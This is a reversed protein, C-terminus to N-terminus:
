LSFMGKFETAYLSESQTRCRALTSSHTIPRTSGAVTRGVSNM